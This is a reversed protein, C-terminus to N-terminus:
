RKRLFLYRTFGDVKVQLRIGDEPRNDKLAEQFSTVNPTQKGNVSVIITGPQLGARAAFGGAEVETVVVGQEDGDLELQEAIEPTLTKVTMGLDDSSAEDSSAAVIAEEDLLGIEVDVTMVKGDRFVELTATTGPRMAAVTNRLQSANLMAKDNLSVVIDGSQLGAKEAPGNPAVDGILVGNDGDFQFSAALDRTLNQIMAGLYGRDVRGTEKLSDMINRAMNIPISFGIGANSGSRSAIATNIGVVEGHLNVLPGGSNGPNIAADTQIFNEYDAIGVTNRGTASVIGATVTKELGFPGGVALVWQGVKVADSNALQAAPLGSAEVKLLAVDSKPDRGVVEAKYTEEDVTKVTVEDAGDVVHNNTLIYGDSSVIVGSGFGRQISNRPQRSRPQLFPSFDDGFFRRFEEPIQQPVSQRGAVSFRKESTISVVSPGIHDAAQEFALSLTDAQQILTPDLPRVEMANPALAAAGAALSVLLGGTMSFMFWRPVQMVRSM